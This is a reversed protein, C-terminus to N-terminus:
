KVGKLLVHTLIGVGTIVQLPKALVGVIGLVDYFPQIVLVAGGVLALVGSIQTLLKVKKTDM